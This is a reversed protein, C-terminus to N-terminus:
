WWAVYFIALGDNLAERAKRIFELDDDKREPGSQGFFFGSTEPLAAAEIAKELDDLDASNLAVPALDFDPDRGGKAQYLREMWGHLDPHKRWYYLQQLKEEEVEFDVASTILAKPAAFVYMDLGMVQGKKSTTPRLQLSHTCFISPSKQPCSFFKKRLGTLPRACRSPKVGRV